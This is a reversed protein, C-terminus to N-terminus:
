YEVLDPVSAPERWKELFLMLDGNTCKEDKYLFLDKKEQFKQNMSSEENKKLLSM